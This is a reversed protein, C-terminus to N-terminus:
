NSLFHRFYDRLGPDEFYVYTGRMGRTLLVQYTNRILKEALKADKCTRIGSSHDSQAIKSPDYIVKGNEYRIDKGVIVGCYEMDLGQCTHICGVEEISKDDYLWSYDNKNMNWKALFEGDDLVIDYDGHEFDNKSKWEYCYGAVLRSHGYQQNKKIIEERMEEARDFIKFDYQYPKYALFNENSPYGLAFRIFDIYSTGGLVRFESTLSQCEIYKSHCFKAMEKIRDITVYDNKTVMQDEDIFFVAVKSGKIAKELLNVDRSVGIGGKWAFMRHAEDFLACGFDDEAANKLSVPSKFLAAIAEKKYDDGILVKGYYDRPAKNQTFYAANIPKFGRTKDGNVLQGLANIAVISKGTGPGGKVVITRKGGYEDSDRAYEVITGVAAAQEDTLSFMEKGNLADSLLSGLKPSPRIVSSEIEYLIEKSAKSVYKFIFDALKQKDDKLFAPSNTVEPFSRTDSFLSAYCENMNHLYSCSILNIKNDQVYANFNQIIGAYNRAQYSPHWYDGEGGGGFTHVFNPKSCRSANSWQKLEIIVVNKSGNSDEGYVLLDIRHRDQNITYEVSVDVDDPLRALKLVTAMEPLSNKWSEFSGDSSGIHKKKFENEVIKAINKDGNSFSDDYFEKCTKQYVIM